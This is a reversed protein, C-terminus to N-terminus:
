ANCWPVIGLTQGYTSSLLSASSLPSCSNQIAQLRIIASSCNGQDSSVAQLSTKLRKNSEFNQQKNQADQAVDRLAADEETIDADDAADEMEVEAEVQWSLRRASPTCIFSSCM